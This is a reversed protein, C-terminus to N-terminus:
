KGAPGAGILYYQLGNWVNWDNLQKAENLDNLNGICRSPEIPSRNM